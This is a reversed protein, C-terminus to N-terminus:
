VHGGGLLFFELFGLFSLIFALAALNPVSFLRFKVTGAEIAAVLVSVAAVKLVYVLISVVMGALGALAFLQDHPLLLNALLTVLVLQRIAAGYEMLALHRGSYELIMAEHVMTLELHTSPDDVPIRSNEAILVILLAFFILLLAPKAMPFGLEQMAQMMGSVSTTRGIMGITFLSVLISPEILASIMAERSSGMGGFTSATDLAAIMLFFRGLALMSVLLIGDGAFPLPSIRTTVPVLAAAGLSTSFLIYPAAKFIWSSVGSVVTTKRLLKFLDFYLQLVPAGKRKQTFAKVKNIIGNVLPALLLVVIVQVLLSGTGNM